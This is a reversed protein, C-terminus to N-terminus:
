KKRCLIPLIPFVLSIYSLIYSIYSSDSGLTYRIFIIDVRCGSVRRKMWGCGYGSTEILNGERLSLMHEHRITSSLHFLSFYYHQSFVHTMLHSPFLRYLFFGIPFWLPLVRCFSFFSIIILSFMYASLFFSLSGIYISSFELVNRVSTKNVDSLM